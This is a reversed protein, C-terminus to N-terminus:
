QPDEPPVLLVVDHPSVLHLEERAIREVTAPDRKLREIEDGLQKNELALRYNQMMLSDYELRLRQLRLIGNQGMFLSLTFSILVAAFLFVPLPFKKKNEKGGHTM